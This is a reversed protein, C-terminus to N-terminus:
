VFSADGRFVKIELNSSCLVLKETKRVICVHASISNSAIYILVLM